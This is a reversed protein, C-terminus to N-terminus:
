PKDKGQGGGGVGVGHPHTSWPDEGTEATYILRLADRIEPLAARLQAVHMAAPMPLQLAHALNDVRDALRGIQEAHTYRDTTM